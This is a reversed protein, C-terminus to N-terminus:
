ISRCRRFAAPLMCLVHLPWLTRMSTASSRLFVYSSICTDLSIDASASLRESAKLRRRDKKVERRGSSMCRKSCYTSLQIVRSSGCNAGGSACEERICLNTRMTTSARSVTAAFLYTTEHWQYQYVLALWRFLARPSAKLSRFRNVRM